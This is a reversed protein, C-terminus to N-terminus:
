TGTFKEYAASALAAATMALAAAAARRRCVTRRSWWRGDGLRLPGFQPVGCLPPAPRPPSVPVAGTSGHPGPGGYPGSSEYAGSSGGYSGTGAYPGPDVCRSSGAGGYRQSGAPRPFAAPPPSVQLSLPPFSPPSPSPSLPPSTRSHESM